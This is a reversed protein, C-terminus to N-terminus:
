KMATLINARVDILEATVAVRKDYLRTDKNWATCTILTIQSTDRQELVSIDTIEVVDKGTVQYTYINKETFLVVEAAQGLEELRRFPGDGGTRLSIHGALATNGGLGPWSTEGMWAVESQLGAIMWSYGDFPVYKVVTDVGLAPIVIRNVPSTDPGAEGEQTPVVSPTPIPYDPLVEPEPTSTPWPRIDTLQGGSSEIDGQVQPLPIDDGDVGTEVSIALGDPASAERGLGVALIGFALGVSILFFGIKVSWGAWEPNQRRARIGYTVAGLGGFGLLAGFVLALRLIDTRDRSVEIWGTNPLTTSGIVRYSIQNSNRTPQTIGRFRYSIRATNTLTTTTRANSNVTTIVTITWSEGPQLLTRNATMQRSANFSASGGTTSTASRIDLLTSYTDQVTLNEASTSGNNTVRITFTLNQNVRAEV